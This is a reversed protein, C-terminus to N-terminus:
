PHFAFALVFGPRDNTKALVMLETNDCFSIHGGGTMLKEPILRHAHQRSKLGFLLSREEIFRLTSNQM